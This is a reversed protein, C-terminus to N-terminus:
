NSPEAIRASQKPLSKKLAKDYKRIPSDRLRIIFTYYSGSM